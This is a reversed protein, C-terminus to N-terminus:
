LVRAAPPPLDILGSSTLVGPRDDVRVPVVGFRRAGLDSIGVLALESGAALEANPVRPLEVVMAYALGAGASAM